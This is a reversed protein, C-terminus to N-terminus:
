LFTWLSSILRISLDGGEGEEDEEESSTSLIAGRGVGRGGVGKSYISMGGGDTAGVGSRPLGAGWSLSCVAGGDTDISCVGDGTSLAPFSPRGKLGQDLAARAM